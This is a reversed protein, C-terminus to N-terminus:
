RGLEALRAKILHGVAAPGHVTEIYRRAAAGITAIRAPDAALQRMIAAAADIDPEAWVQGPIFFPYDDPGVSVPQWPVPFGTAPTLFDRSGSFDTAIVAKGMAMAEALGLGFGESRHLSVFVDASATLRHMQMRDLLRDIVIIRPDTAAMARIDALIVDKKPSRGRTKIILAVPATRDAAFARLYAALVAEPNKRAPYSSFDFAFLFATVTNPIGFGARDPTIGPPMSVAVPIHTVPTDSGAIFADRVFTTPAWIEDVTALAARWDPHLHALEWFPRIINLRGATTAPGLTRMTHVIADANVCFLNVRKGPTTTVLPALSRDKQPHELEIDFNVADIPVGVAELSSAMSRMAEGLGIDAFPYGILSVGPQLQAASPAHRGRRFASQLLGQLLRRRLDAPIPRYLWEIYPRVGLLAKFTIRALANGLTRRTM